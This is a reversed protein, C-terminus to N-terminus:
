WRARASRRRWGSSRASRARRRGRVRRARQRSCTAAAPRAALPREARRRSRHARLGVRRARGGRAALRHAAPRRDPRVAGGRPETATAGPPATACPSRAGAAGRRRRRGGRYELRVEINAPRRSRTSCTAAVHERRALRRARAAHGARRLPRPAHAAQGASNGGGVVYVQEGALARAESVSAGYFVGAGDLAELAPIGLRRYTVGTALVVARATSRAATALTAVSTADEGPSPPEGGRADAPVARRVGLGAPLRAAGARRRQRRALVRPLQPDALEVGGPRRDVRARRRADAPGGLLRVGRGRARGARRRRRRRRLRASTTSSRPRRRLRAVLEANSPDVLVRGDMLIARGARGDGEPGVDRSCGRPGRALRQRPLRAPRRQAGAPQPARARAAVLARRRRDIEQPSGATARSWEHLFETITRHFFEDRRAGRSSCTTTSTASRWRACCRRRRDDPRGLRGVRDAAGRKAHPHLERVRALLEGGDIEPMWQDALVLAVQTARTACSRELMALAAARRLARLRRPLRRRLPAGARARDARARGRRRRGVVLVPRGRRPANMPPDLVAAPKCGWVAELM